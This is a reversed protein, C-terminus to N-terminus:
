KGVYCNTSHEYIWFGYDQIIADHDCGGTESDTEIQTETLMKILKIDNASKKSDMLRAICNFM